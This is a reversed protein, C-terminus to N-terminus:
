KLSKALFKVAEEPTAVLKFNKPFSVDSSKKLHEILLRTRKGLIVIPKMHLNRNRMEWIVMLEALTGTGGDLVIFGDALDILKFLRERWLPRRVEKAIFENRSRARYAERYNAGISTGSRLVQKGLVQAETTKPLSIYMKVIRLAFGTTRERLDEKDAM